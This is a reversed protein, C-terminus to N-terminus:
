TQSAWTQSAWTQSETRAGALRHLSVAAARAIDAPVGHGDLMATAADMEEARRAAHHRTGEVIGALSAASLDDFEARINDALWDGLGQKDAADLAEVIAAAMGKYFVSRLLKREAAAGAPGDIVEVRGGHASIVGAFRAAGSGAALMPVGIGKGPVYAMISVDAFYAGREALRDGFRAMLGPETTNLDAWLAGARVAPLAAELAPAAFAATTLSIVVDASEAAARDSDVRVVGDPATTSPDPDYASVIAGAAVLDAAFMTGVEGLGLIGFSVPGGSPGGATSTM